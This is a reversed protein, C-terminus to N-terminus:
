HLRQSEGICLQHACLFLLLSQSAPTNMQLCHECGANTPPAAAETADVGTVSLSIKIVRSGSVVTVSLACVVSLRLTFRLDQVNILLAINHWTLQLCDRRWRLLLWWGCWRLV